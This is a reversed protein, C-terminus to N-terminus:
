RSAKGRRGRGEVIRAHPVLRIELSAAAGRQVPKRQTARDAPWVTQLVPWAKGAEPVHPERQPAPIFAVLDGIGPLGPVRALHQLLSLRV